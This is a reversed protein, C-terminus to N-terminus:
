LKVNKVMSTVDIEVKGIKFIYRGHIHIHQWAIPSVKKILDAELVNGKSEHHALLASLLWTNYYIIANALLRNCENWIKQEMVTHVKFRGGNAHFLYKRLKNIHEGRNLVTNVQKQFDPDDIYNLKHYTEVINDYEVIAKKTKNNRKTSSLKKIITSQTTAKMALSASIRQFNDWEGIILDKKVLRKPKLVYDKYKSPHQFSYITKSKSSINKYRPAFQYGFMDLIAFNVQNIGHSDTSHIDTQIDTDNNYILDFVYNGEYENAGIIDGNVLVNNAVNTLSSIGKELGFYKPSYRSNITPIQTYYKQGDSSSHVLGPQVSYHKYMPFAITKNIIRRNAEKLTELYILTNSTVVLDQYSMDSISAMKGIGYNTGFAVICAILKNKDTKRSVNTGLLHTFASLFNTQSDVVQLLSAIDIPSFQGYIQHNLPNSTETYILHWKTTGDKNKGDIQVSPNLGKKIRDNARKYLPEIIQEWESLVAEASKGIKPADIQNLIISKNVDWEKQPILDEDFNKNDFSDPLFIDGSELKNRLSQYLAMEYRPFQIKGDSSTIYKKLKKSLFDCSLDETSIKRIPQKEIEIAEKVAYLARILADSKNNSNFSFHFSIPRLYLSILRRKEEYFLWILEKKDPKSKQILDVVLEFDAQNLIIFAERKVTKFLQHDRDNNQFFALVKPVKDLAQHSQLQHSYIQAQAAKDASKELGLVYFKLANALIDNMLRYRHHAFCLLYIYVMNNEKMMRRLNFIKYEIALEGYYRINENAIEMKSCVRQAIEYIPYLIKQRRLVQRIQHYEFGSPEKQLLTFPYMGDEPKELLADILQKEDPSVQKQILVILRKHEAHIVKSIIDRQLFSYAPLILKQHHFYQLLSRFIYVPHTHRKALAAAKDIIEQHYQRGFFRYGFYNCILKQQAIRTPKTITSLKNRNSKPFYKKIVYATDVEQQVLDFLFFLHKAKFYGLQLIFFIKSSLGRCQNLLFEEQPNLEFFLIREDPNFNPLAYIYDIEAKELIHLHHDYATTTNSM